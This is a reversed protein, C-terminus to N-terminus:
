PRIRKLIAEALAAHGKSNPYRGLAGTHAEGGEPRWCEADDLSDLRAHTVRFASAAQRLEEAYIARRAPLVAPEPVFLVALRGSRQRARVILFDVAKRFTRAPTARRADDCAIVWIVLEAPRASELAALAMAFDGLIPNTVGRAAEGPLATAEVWTGAGDRVARIYAPTEPTADSAASGPLPAARFAPALLTVGAPVTGESLQDALLKMMLWERDDVSVRQRLVVVAAEPRGTANGSQKVYLREGRAELSPIASEECVRRIVLATSSTGGVVLAFEARAWGSSPLGFGGSSKGLAPVSLKVAEPAKPAEAGKTEPTLTVTVTCDVEEKGPNEVRFKLHVSERDRYVLPPLYEVVFRPSAGAPVGGASVAARAVDPAAAVTVAAITLRVALLSARM